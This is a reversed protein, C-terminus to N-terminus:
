IGTDPMVTHITEPNVPFRLKFETGKGEESSLVIYGGHEKVIKYIINLGLGLGKDKTTFFPQFVQSLVEEPMGTGTDTFTIEVEDETKKYNTQITLVGGKPMAQISNMLINIFVQKIHNRDIMLFPIDASFSEQFIIESYKAKLLSLTEALVANIDTKDRRLQSPKAFSLFDDTLRNLREMEGEILSFIETNEEPRLSYKKLVGVSNSIAGLPNRIEHAMIAAMKGISALKESENLYKQTEKLTAYAKEIEINKGKIKELLNSLQIKSTNLRYFVKAFGYALGFLLGAFIVIKIIHWYWWVPDWLKSFTFFLESTFFLLMATGFILYIIDNTKLFARVRFIGACLYFTSSLLNLTYIFFSFEGKAMSVHIHHPLSTSLAHPIYSYFTESFVAVLIIVFIGAFISFRKVWILQGTYTEDNRYVFISILFFFSGLLAGSSHYWVFLDICYNSFAHFFDFIGVVFFGYVLFLINKKNSIFYEWSLIIGIIVSILGSFSELLTHTLEDVWYTNAPFFIKKILVVAVSIAAMFILIGATYILFKKRAASISINDIDELRYVIHKLLPQDNQPPLLSWLNRLRPFFKKINLPPEGAQTPSNHQLTKTNFKNL